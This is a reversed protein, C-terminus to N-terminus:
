IWSIFRLLEELLPVAAIIALVNGIIETMGALGICGADKCFDGTLKTLVTVALVKLVTGLQKGSVSSLKAIDQGISVVSAFEERGTEFVVLMAVFALLLSVSPLDRRLTTILVASVVIIGVVKLIM